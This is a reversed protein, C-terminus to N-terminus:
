RGYGPLGYDPRWGHGYGVGYGPIGYGPVGYGYGYGRCGYYGCAGYFGRHVGHYAIGRRYYPYGYGYGWHLADSTQGVEEGEGQAQEAQGNQDPAQPGAPTADGQPAVQTPEATPPEETPAACGVLALGTGLTWAISQHRINMVFRRTM